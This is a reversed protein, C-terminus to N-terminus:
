LGVGTERRLSGVDDDFAQDILARFLGYEPAGTGQSSIGQM